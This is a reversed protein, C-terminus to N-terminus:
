SFYFPVQQSSYVARGLTHGDNDDQWVGGLPSVGAQFTVAVILAVAVLMVGRMDNPLREHLPFPPKFPTVFKKLFTTFTCTDFAMESLGCSCSYPPKLKRGFTKHLHHSFRTSLAVCTHLSASKRHSNSQPLPLLFFLNLQPSFL